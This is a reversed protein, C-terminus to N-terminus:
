LDGESIITIRKDRFSLKNMESKIRQLTLADEGSLDKIPKDNVLIESINIKKSSSIFDILFDCIQEPENLNLKKLASPIAENDFDDTAVALLEEMDKCLVETNHGKRFIEIKPMPEKKYGETILLDCDAPLKLILESLPLDYSTDCIVAYKEKSSIIVASAGAAKHRYTDKGERDMQFSHADHKVTCIKLGKSTLIKIIKELLTTKGSNSKGVFSIIHPM